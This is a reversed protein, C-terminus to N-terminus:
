PENRWLKEDGPGGPDRGATSARVRLDEPDPIRQSVFIQDERGRDEEQPLGSRPLSGSNKFCFSNWLISMQGLM